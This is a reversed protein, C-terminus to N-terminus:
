KHRSSVRPSNAFVERATSMGSTLRTSGRKLQLNDITLNIEDISQKSDLSHEIQGSSSYQVIGVRSTGPSIDFYKTFNRLWDLQMDYNRLVSNSGDIAFVLDLKTARCGQIGSFKQPKTNSAAVALSLFLFPKM